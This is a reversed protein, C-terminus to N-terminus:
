YYTEIDEDFDPEEETKEKREEKVRNFTFILAIIIIVVLLIILIVKFVTVIVDEDGDKEQKEDLPGITRAVLDITTEELGTRIEVPMVTRSSAKKEVALYLYVTKQEGPQITIKDSPDVRYSGIERIVETDPVIEYIREREGINTIKMQYVVGPDDVIIERYSIYDIITDKIETTGAISFNSLLLIMSLFFLGIIVHKAMKM